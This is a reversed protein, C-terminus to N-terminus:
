SPMFLKAAARVEQAIFDSVIQIRALNRIDSHTIIHFSRTLTIEKPLVRQLRPEADAMFRPLVCLGFGALTANYQVQLNSSTFFPQIDKAILPIYDLEPAYIMDGIYGIFRHKKLDAPAAIPENASLYDRAAYLGLEYDTLKRTHLRGEAPPALGIAIDAERKSLSFIRPLTVLQVQLDPHDQSLRGLRTALFNVGFGDPAGVRVTGAVQLSSGAIRTLIRLAVSEMDQAASLLAEGQPTLTYGSPQRNFLKTQLMQELDTIRRSLTSHDVRLQRAAITLRGCRVVALFSQLANWDFQQIMHPNVCLPHQFALM